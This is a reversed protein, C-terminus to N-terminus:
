GMALKGISWVILNLSALLIVLWTLLIGWMRGFSKGNPTTSIGYAHLARGVVLAAGFLHVKVAAQDAMEVLLILVLALPVYEVFNGHARIAGTLCPLGGDGTSVKNRLRQRAVLYSLVMLMVGLLGAYLPTIVVGEVVGM